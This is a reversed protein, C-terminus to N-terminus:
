NREVVSKKLTTLLYNLDDSYNESKKEKYDSLTFDFRKIIMETKHYDRIFTCLSMQKKEYNENDFQLVNINNKLCWNIFEQYNNLLIANIVFYSILYTKEYYLQDRNASNTDYLDQYKLGMYNLIKVTQLIAFVREKCILYNFRNIFEDFNDNYEYTSSFICNMIKAWTETYAEYLRVNSKIPFIQLILDKSVTDDTVSFDLGLNHISEHCFVKFWEEKRYIILESDSSCPYTYANNLNHREMQEGYEPLSKKLKSFFLFISLKNSCKRTSYKLYTSFLILMRKICENYEEINYTEETIYITIEKGFINYKYVTQYILNTNIDNQLLEPIINFEKPKLFNNMEKNTAIYGVNINIKSIDSISENFKSYFEKLVNKTEKNIDEYNYDNCNLFSIMGTSTQSLRIDDDIYNEREDSKVFSAISLVTILLCFSLLFLGFLIIIDNIM